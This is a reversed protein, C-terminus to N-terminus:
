SVMRPSLSLLFPLQRLLLYLCQCTLIANQYFSITGPLDISFVLPQHFPLVLFLAQGQTTIVTIDLHAGTGSYQTSVGTHLPVPAM